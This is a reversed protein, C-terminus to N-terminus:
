IQADGSGAIQDLSLTLEKTLPTTTVNLLTDYWPDGTPPYSMYANNRQLSRTAPAVTTVPDASNAAQASEDMVVAASGDVLLKYPNTGTYLTDLAEGYFALLTGPGIIPPGELLFPVANGQNMLSLQSTAIGSLDIGQALLDEHRVCVLGSEDVALNIGASSTFSGALGQASNTAARIRPGTVQPLYITTRAGDEPQPWRLPTLFQNLEEGSQILEQAQRQADETAAISWAPDDSLDDTALVNDFEGNWIPAGQDMGFDDDVSLQADLAAETSTQSLHAAQAQPVAQTLMALILVIFALLQLSARTPRVPHMFM